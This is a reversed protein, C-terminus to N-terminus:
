LRQRLWEAAVDFCDKRDAPNLLYHDAGLLEHYTVDDSGAADRMAHAEGYTIETDATAHVMLVPVDTNAITDVM